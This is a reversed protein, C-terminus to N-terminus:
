SPPARKLDFCISQLSIVWIASESHDNVNERYGLWCGSQSLVQQEEVVINEHLAYKANFRFHTPHGEKIQELIVEVPVRFVMEDGQRTYFSFHTGSKENSQETQGERSRRLGIASPKSHRFTNTAISSHHRSFSTTISSFDPLESPSGWNALEHSREESYSGCEMCSSSTDVNIRESSAHIRVVKKKKSCALLGTLKRRLFSPMLQRLRHECFLRKNGQANNLQQSLRLKKKM